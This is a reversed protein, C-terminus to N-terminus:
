FERFGLDRYFDFTSISYCLETAQQIHEQAMQIDYIGVFVEFIFAILLMRFLREFHLRWDKVKSQVKMLGFLGALGGVSGRWLERDKESPLDEKSSLNLGGHLIYINRYGYNFLKKCVQKSYLGEQDIILIRKNKSVKEIVENMFEENEVVYSLGYIFQKTFIFLLKSLFNEFTFSYDNEYFPIHVANCLQVRNFQFQPRVDLVTYNQSNYRLIVGAGQSNLVVCKKDDIHKELAEDAEKCLKDINKENQKQEYEEIYKLVNKWGGTKLEGEQERKINDKITQKIKPIDYEINKPKCKIGYLLRPKKLYLSKPRFSCINM